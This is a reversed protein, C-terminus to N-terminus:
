LSIESTHTAVSVGVITIYFPLRRVLNWQTAHSPPQRKRGPSPVNAEQTHQAAAPPGNWRAVCSFAGDMFVHGGRGVGGNPNGQQCDADGGTAPSPSPPFSLSDPIESLPLVPMPM